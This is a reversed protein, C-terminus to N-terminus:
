GGPRALRRELRTLRTRLREQLREVQGPTHRGEETELHELARVVLSRARPLDRDRHKLQKESAVRHSRPYLKREKIIRGIDPVLGGMQEFMGPFMHFLDQGLGSYISGVGPYVFVIKGEPALPAASFFSGRPTKIEAKHSFAAPIQSTIFAAEAELDEGSPGVLMLSFLPEDTSAQINKKSNPM